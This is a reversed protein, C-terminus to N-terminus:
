AEYHVGRCPCSESGPRMDFDQPDDGPPLVVPPVTEQEVGDIFDKVARNLMRLDEIAAMAPSRGYAQGDVKTFRPVAYPMMEFGGEDVIKKADVEIYYSAIPMNDNTKKKMDRGTRPRVCHVFMLKEMATAPKKAKLVTEPSCEDGWREVAQKATYQFERYVTDVNGHHDEAIWCDVMKFTRFTPGDPAIYDVFMVATGFVALQILAEHVMLSFNSEGLEKITRDAAESHWKKIDDSKNQEENEARLGFWKQGMAVTNSFLYSALTNACYVGHSDSPKEKDGEAEQTHSKINSHGPMCFFACDELLTDLVGRQSKLSALADLLEGAFKADKENSM